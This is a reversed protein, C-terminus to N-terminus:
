EQQPIEGGFPITTQGELKVLKASSQRTLTFTIEKKIDM